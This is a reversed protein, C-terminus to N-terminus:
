RLAKKGGAMALYAQCHPKAPCWFCHNGAVAKPKDTMANDIAIIVEKKFDLLREVNTTWRKVPWGSKVNPQIIFLDIIASRPLPYERLLGLAYIMEQKNETASVPHTGWKLDFLKIREESVAAADATGWCLKPVIVVEREVCLEAEGLHERVSGVYTAMKHDTPHTGEKLHKEAIKHQRTGEESAANSYNPYLPVMKVSYPCTMWREAASPPFLAHSM